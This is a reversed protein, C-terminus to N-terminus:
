PKTNKQVIKAFDIKEEIDKIRLKLPILLINMYHNSGLNEKTENLLDNALVLQKQLKKIYAELENM